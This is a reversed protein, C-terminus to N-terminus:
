FGAGSFATPRLHLHRQQRSGSTTPFITFYTEHNKAAFSMGVVARCGNECVISLIELSNKGHALIRNPSM